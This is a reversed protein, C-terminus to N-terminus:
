SWNDGLEMMLRKEEMRAEIQRRVNMQRRKADRKQERINDFDLETDDEIYDDEFM